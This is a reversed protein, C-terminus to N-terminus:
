ALIDEIPVGSLYADLQSEYAFNRWASSFEEDQWSVRLTVDAQSHNHMSSSKVSYGAEELMKSISECIAQAFDFPSVVHKDFPAPANEDVSESGLLPFFAESISAKLCAEGSEESFAIAHASDPLCLSAESSCHVSVAIDLRGGLFVERIKASAKRAIAEAYRPVAERARERREVTQALIRAQIDSVNEFSNDPLVFGSLPNESPVVPVHGYEFPDDVLRISCDYGLPIM